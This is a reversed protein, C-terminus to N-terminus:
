VNKLFLCWCTECFLELIKAQEPYKFFSRHDDLPKLIEMAFTMSPSFKGGMVVTLYALQSQFNLACGPAAGPGPRPFPVHLDQDPGGRYARYVERGRETLDAVFGDHSQRIYLKLILRWFKSHFPLTFLDDPSSDLLLVNEDDFYQRKEKTGLVAASPRKMTAPLTKSMDNIRALEDDFAETKPDLSLLGSDDKVFLQSDSDDPSFHRKHKREKLKPKKKKVKKPVPKPIPNKVPKAEKDPTSPIVAKKVPKEVIKKAVLPKAIKGACNPKGIPKRVPPAIDDDCSCGKLLVKSFNDTGRTLPRQGILKKNDHLIVSKKLDKQVAVSPKKEKRLVVVLTMSPMTRWQIM